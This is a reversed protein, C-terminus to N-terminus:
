AGAALAYASTLVPVPGFRDSLWGGVPRAVVALVIFGATRFAADTDTLGYATGLYTPLYVSFAVFGGFGVAYLFSLEWTSRIRIVSMASGFLSGTPPTSRPADRVLALAIGGYVVLIVAVLIFPFQEGVNEALPVTTFAAVATGATGMGFVGLATGRHERTFWGNVHPVGVAFATGAIGLVFGGVVLAAFSDAIFGVFLVPPIAAFSVAPFMVRAGHRDTLAGVPIRGLSGVIVPVAVVLSQQFATLDLDNGLTPALPGLLSWAWFNVLFGVTALTLMLNPATGANQDAPSSATGSM